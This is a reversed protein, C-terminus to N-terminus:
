ANVRTSPSGPRSARDQSVKPHHLCCTSWLPSEFSPVAGPSPWNFQTPRVVIATQSAVARAFVPLSHVRRRGYTMMTNEESVAYTHSSWENTMMTNEERMHARRPYSIFLVFCFYLSDWGTNGLAMVVHQGHERVLLVASM